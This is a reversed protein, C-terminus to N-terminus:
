IGGQLGCERYFELLRKGEERDGRMLEMRNRMKRRQHFFVGAGRVCWAWPLLIRRGALWPFMSRMEAYSPFCVRRIFHWRGEGAALASINGASGFIHNELVFQGLRATLADAEEGAFWHNALATIRCYFEWLGLTELQARLYAGDMEYRNYVFVDVIFRVGIGGEMFHIAMHIMNFIFEDELRMVYSHNKGDKRVARSWAEACYPAFQSSAPVLERHAEVCLVPKKRYTDNKRGQQYDDYGLENMVARLTRQQEQRYLLDIDGMTRLIAEPYRTKTVVGKFLMHDVGALELAEELVDAAQTQLMHQVATSMMIDDLREYEAPRAAPPIQEAWKSVFPILGHHRALTIVGAWDIAEYPVPEGTLVNRVIALLQEESM